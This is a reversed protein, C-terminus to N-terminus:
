LSNVKSVACGNCGAKDIPLKPQGSANTVYKVAHGNGKAVLKKLSQITVANGNGTVTVTGCDGKLLWASARGDLTVNEGGKCTQEVVKAQNGTGPIGPGAHATVLSALDSSCM